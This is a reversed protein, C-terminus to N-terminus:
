FDSSGEDGMLIVQEPNAVKTERAANGEDSKTKVPFLAKDQIKAQLNTAGVHHKRGSKKGKGGAMAELVAMM